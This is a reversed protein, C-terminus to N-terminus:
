STAKRGSVTTSMARRIFHLTGAVLTLLLVPVVVRLHFAGEGGFVLYAVYYLGFVTAGGLSIWLGVRCRILLGLAILLAVIGHPLYSDTWDLGMRVAESDGRWRFTDQAGLYLLVAGVIAWLILFANRISM